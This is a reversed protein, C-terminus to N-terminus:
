YGDTVLRLTEQKVKLRRRKRNQLKVIGYGASICLIPVFALFVCAYVFPLESGTFYDYGGLNNCSELASTNLQGPQACPDGERWVFVDRQIADESISTSNVIIDWMTIKRLEEIDEASFISCWVRTLGFQFWKSLM